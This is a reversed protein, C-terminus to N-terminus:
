ERSGLCVIEPFFADARAGVALAPAGSRRRTELISLFFLTRGDLIWM